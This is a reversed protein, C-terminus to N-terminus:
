PYQIECNIETALKFFDNADRISLKRQKIANNANRKTTVGVGMVHATGTYQSSITGYVHMYKNRVLQYHRM